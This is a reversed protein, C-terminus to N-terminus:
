SRRASTVASTRPRSAADFLQYILELVPRVIALLAASTPPAAPRRPPTPVRPPRRPRRAPRRAHRMRPDHTRLSTRGLSPDRCVHRCVAVIEATAAFWLTKMSPPLSFCRMDFWLCRMWNMPTVAPARRSSAGDTARASRSAQPPTHNNESAAQSYTGVSVHVVVHSGTAISVDHAALSYTSQSWDHVAVASAPQVSVHLSVHVVSHSASCVLSSGRLEIPRHMDLQWCSQLSSHPPSPLPSHRDDHAWLQASFHSSEFHLSSSPSTSHAVLHSRDHSPVHQARAVLSHWTEHWASVKSTQLVSSTWSHSFLQSVVPPAIKQSPCNRAATSTSSHAASSSASSLM